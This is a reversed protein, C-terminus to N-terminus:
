IRYALELQLDERGGITLALKVTQALECPTFWQRLLRPKM